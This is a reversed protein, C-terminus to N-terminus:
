LAAVDAAVVKGDSPTATERAGERAMRNHSVQREGMRGAM